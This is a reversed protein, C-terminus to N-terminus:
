IPFIVEAPVVSLLPYYLDFVKQWNIGAYRGGINNHKYFALKKLCKNGNKYLYL